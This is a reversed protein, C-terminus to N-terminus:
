GSGKMGEMFVSYLLALGLRYLGARGTVAHVLLASATALMQM